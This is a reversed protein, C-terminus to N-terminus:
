ARRPSPSRASVRRARWVLVGMATPVTVWLIGSPVGTAINVAIIAAGGVAAIWLLATTVYRLAERWGVGTFFAAVAAGTVDIGVDRVSGTRSTTTAQHLEDVVAWAIAIVLAGWTAGRRTLRTNRTLAVFWLTALVGYETVHASKRILWHLGDIMGASAWPLLAELVPRVVSATATDRFTDGSLSLIVVMWALPLLWITLRVV